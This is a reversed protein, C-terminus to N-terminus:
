RVAKRIRGSLIEYQERGVGKKVYDTADDLVAQKMIEKSGQGTYLIFPLNQYRERIKNLLELGDTGPMQYDSVICDFSEAPDDVQNLEDLGDSASLVSTFSFRDSQEKLFVEAMEIDHQNDDILLIEITNKAGATTGIKDTSLLDARLYRVFLNLTRFSPLCVTTKNIQNDTESYIVAAPEQDGSTPSSPPTKFKIIDNRDIIIQDDTKSSQLRIQSNTVFIRYTHNAKKEGTRSRYTDVVETENLLKKYLVNQFKVLIEIDTSISITERQSDSWFALTVTETSEVSRIQSVGQVIDFISSIEITRKTGDIAVGIQEDSVVIRSQLSRHETSDTLEVEAHFDAVISRSM